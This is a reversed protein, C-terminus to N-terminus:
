QGQIRCKYKVLLLWVARKNLNTLQFFLSLNLVLCSQKTVSRGNSVKDNKELHFIRCINGM